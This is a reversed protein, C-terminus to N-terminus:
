SELRSANSNTPVCYSFLANIATRVAATVGMGYLTKVTVAPTNWILRAARIAAETMPLDALNKRSAPSIYKKPAPMFDKM